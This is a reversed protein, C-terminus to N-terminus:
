QAVIYMSKYREKSLNLFFFDDDVVLWSAAIWGAELWSAELWGVLLGGVLRWCATLLAAAVM